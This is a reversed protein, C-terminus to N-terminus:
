ELREPRLYRVLGFWFVFSCSDCHNHRNLGYEDALEDTPFRRSSMFEDPGVRVATGDVLNAQISPAVYFVCGWVQPKIPTPKTDPKQITEIM